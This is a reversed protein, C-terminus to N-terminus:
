DGGMSFCIYLFIFNFISKGTFTNNQLDLIQLHKLQTLSLPITGVLNNNTLLLQQLQSLQTINAPIPGQLTNKRLDLTILNHCQMLQQPIPGSLGNWSLNLLSLDTLNGIMPSIPGTLNSFPLNLTVVRLASNCEVGPWSHCHATSNYNNSTWNALAAQADPGLAAKFALLAAVDQEVATSNVAVLRRGRPSFKAEPISPFEAEGSRSISETVCRRQRFLAAAVESSSAGKVETWREVSCRRAEELAAADTGACVLVTALVLVLRWSVYAGSGGVSFNM